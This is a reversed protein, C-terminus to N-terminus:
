SVYCNFFLSIFCHVIDLGWVGVEKLTTSYWCHTWWEQYDRWQYQNQTVCHLVSSSTSPLSLPPTEPNKELTRRSEPDRCSASVATSSVSPTTTTSTPTPTAAAWTPRPCRPWAARTTPAATSCCSTQASRAALEGPMPCRHRAALTEVRWMWVM